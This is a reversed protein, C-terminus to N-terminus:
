KKPFFKRDIWGAFCGAIIPFLLVWRTDFIHFLFLTFFAIVLLIIFKVTNRKM